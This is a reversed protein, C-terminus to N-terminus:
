RAAGSIDYTIRGERRAEEIDSELREYDRINMREIESELYVRKGNVEQPIQAVPARVTAAAQAAEKNKRQPKNESALDNKYINVAKIAANANITSGYLADYIAGGIVEGREEELPQREVWNKFHETEILDPFDPHAKCVLNWAREFELEAEKKNISTLQENIGKTKEGVKYDAIAEIVAAVEPYEKAWEMVEQINATKPLKIQEKTAEELRRELAAKEALLKDKEKQAHRRLDGHRQKWTQEERNLTPDDLEVVPEQPPTTNALAELAALEADLEAERSARTSVKTYDTM